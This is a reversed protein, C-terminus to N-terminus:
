PAKTMSAGGVAQGELDDRDDPQGAVQGAGQEAQEPGLVGARGRGLRGPELLLQGAEALGELEV